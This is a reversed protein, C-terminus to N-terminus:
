TTTAGDTWLGDEALAYSENILDALASVIATDGAAAPSLFGATFARAM